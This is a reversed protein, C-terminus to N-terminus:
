NPLMWDVIVGIDAQIAGCGPGVAYKWKNVEGLLANDLRQIGSPSTLEVHKVDGNEDIDV